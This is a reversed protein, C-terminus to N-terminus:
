TLRMPLDALCAQLPLILRANGAVAKQKRSNPSRYPYGLVTEVEAEDDADM